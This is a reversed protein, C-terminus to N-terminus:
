KGNGKRHVIEVDYKGNAVINHKDINIDPANHFELIKELCNVLEFWKQYGSCQKRKLKKISETIQVGNPKIKLFGLFELKLLAENLEETEFATRDLADATQIIERLSVTRHFFNSRMFLCGLIISDNSNFILKMPM